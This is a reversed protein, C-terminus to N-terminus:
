IGLKFEEHIIKICEDAKEPEVMFTINIGTVAQSILELNIGKKAIVNFIRAAIGPMNAMEEGVVSVVACGKRIECEEGIKKCIRELIQKIREDNKDDFTFSICTQSTTITDISIGAKAVNNFIRAAFGPADVMKGGKITALGISKKATISSIIKENKAQKKERIQTGTQAPTFVNKIEAFINTGRLVDVTRPHLVKAGFYGLEKAEEFSIEELKKANPIIKPNASMFGDVDKWIELVDAECAYAVIAASYDTGGRGFTNVNGKKDSGYYGTIVLTKEKIGPKVNKAFNKKTKKLICDANEFRGNSIIGCKEADMALAPIENANLYEAILIASLREGFSAIREKIPINKGESALKLFLESLENLKEELAEKPKELLSLHKQKLEETINKGNEYGDLLLDTVGNLASVVLVNERKANMKLIEVLRDLDEKNRLIGGGIKLVARM